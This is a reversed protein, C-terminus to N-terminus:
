GRRRPDSGAVPSRRAAREEAPGAARAGAVAGPAPAGLAAATRDYAAHALRRSRRPRDALHEPVRSGLRTRARRAGRRVGPGRDPGPRGRGTWESCGQPSGSAMGAASAGWAGPCTSWHRRTWNWVCTRDSPPRRHARVHGPRPRAAPRVGPRRPLRPCPRGGSPLTPSAAGGRRGAAGGTWGYLAARSRTRPAATSPSLASGACRTRPWGPVPRRRRGGVARRRRCRSTRRSRWRGAGPLHRGGHERNVTWHAPIAPQLGTGLATLGVRVAVEGAARTPAPGRSSRPSRRVATTGPARWCRTGRRVAGRLLAAAFRGTRPERRPDRAVVAVSRRPGAGREGRPGTSRASGRHRDAQRAARPGAAPPGLRCRRRDAARAVPGRGPPSSRAWGSRSSTTPSGPDRRTSISPVAAGRRGPGGRVRPVAAGLAAALLAASRATRRLAGARRPRDPAARVGARGLGALLATAFAPLGAYALRVAAALAERGGADIMGGLLREALARGRLALEETAGRRAAAGGPPGGGTRRRRPARHRRRDACCTPSCGRRRRPTTPSRRWCCGRAAPAPRGRRRRAGRRRRGGPAATMMALQPSELLAAAAGLGGRLGGGAAGRLAAVESRAEHLRDRPREAATGRRCRTRPPERWRRSPAGGAAAAAAADDGSGARPRARGPREAVDRLVHRASFVAGPSTGCWTTSRRRSGRAAPRASGTGPGDVTM